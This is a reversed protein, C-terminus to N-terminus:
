RVMRFYRGVEPLMENLHEFIRLAVTQRAVHAEYGWEIVRQTLGAKVVVRIIITLGVLYTLHFIDAILIFVSPTEKV